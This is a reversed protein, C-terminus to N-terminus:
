CINFWTKYIEGWFSKGSDASLHMAFADFITWFITLKVGFAIWLNNSHYTKHMKVAIMFFEAAIPSNIDKLM